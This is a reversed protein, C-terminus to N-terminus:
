EGVGLQESRALDVLDGDVQRHRRVDEQGPMADPELHGAAVERAEVAVRIGAAGDGLVTVLIDLDRHVPDEMARFVGAAQDQGDDVALRHRCRIALFLRGSSPSSYISMPLPRTMWTLPM